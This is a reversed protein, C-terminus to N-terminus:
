KNKMLESKVRIAVVVVVVAMEVWDCASNFQWFCHVKLKRNFFSDPGREAGKGDSEGIIECRTSLTTRSSTAIVQASLRM